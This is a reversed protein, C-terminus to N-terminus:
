EKRLTFITVEPRANFRIPISHGLGRNIYLTRDGSIKKIGQDYNKNKVPIIPSGWFPIRVQGAHTHGALIWGNYGNWGDLDAADPNHCLVLCAHSQDYDKMTKVLDFNTGWFDDIGFIRLGQTIVSENRLVKISYGNLLSVISDAAASDQFNKGYDHNGLIALTQLKGKPADQMVEDLQELPIKNHVLRVFDGTYVMIDPKLAAIERFTRKIFDKDVYNGIHIDSIQILSKGELAEPLYKVTLNIQEHKVWHPEIKWSYFGLLAGMVFLYIAIHKLKQKNKM